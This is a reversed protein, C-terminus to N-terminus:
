DRPGSLQGQDPVIESIGTSRARRTRKERGQM